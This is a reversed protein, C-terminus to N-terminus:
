SHYKYVVIEMCLSLATRVPYFCDCWKSTPLAQLISASIHYPVLIYEREKAFVCVHAYECMCISLGVPSYDSCYLNILLFQFM